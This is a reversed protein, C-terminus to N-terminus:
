LPRFNTALFGFSYIMLSFSREFASARRCVHMANRKQFAESTDSQGMAIVISNAGGFVGEGRKDAKWASIFESLRKHFQQKDIKVEEAM